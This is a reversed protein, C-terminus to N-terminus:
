ADGASVVVHADLGGGTINSAGLTNRAQELAQASAFVTDVELRGKDYKILKIRSGQLVPAARAALALFDSDDAVGAAARLGTLSRRMQLAPYDVSQAGPFAAKFDQVMQANLNGQERKLKAWEIGTVLFQAAVVLALAILAPRLARALDPLKGLRGSAAFEGGMLEISGDWGAEIGPWPLGAVVPVGLAVSWAAIDPLGTGAPARVIIQKPLFKTEGM